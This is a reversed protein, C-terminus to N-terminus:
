LYGLKRLRQVIVDTDKSVDEPSVENAGLEAKSLAVFDSAQWKSFPHAIILDSDSELGNPTRKEVVVVCDFKARQCLSVVTDRENIPRHISSPTFSSGCLQPVQRGMPLIVPWSQKGAFAENLVHCLAGALEKHPWLLATRHRADYLKRFNDATQEILRTTNSSHPM